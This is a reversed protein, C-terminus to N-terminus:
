GSCYGAAVTDPRECFDVAVPILGDLVALRVPQFDAMFQFLSSGDYQVAIAGLVLVAIGRKEDGLEQGNCHSTM